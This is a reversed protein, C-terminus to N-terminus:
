DKFADMEPFNVATKAFSKPNVGARNQANINAGYSILLNIMEVGNENYGERLCARMLPMNGYPDRCEINAGKDLLKKAMVIRGFFAAYMLATMSNYDTGEIDVDSDLLVEFSEMDNNAVAECLPKFNIKRKM